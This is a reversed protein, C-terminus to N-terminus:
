IAVGLSAKFFFSGFKPCQGFSQVGGRGGGYNPRVLNPCEPISSVGRGRRMIQVIDLFFAQELFSLNSDEVYYIGPPFHDKISLLHSTM